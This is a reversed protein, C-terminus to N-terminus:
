PRCARLRISDGRGSSTGAAATAARAQRRRAVHPIRCGGNVVRAHTWGDQEKAPKREVGRLPVVLHGREAAVVAAQTGVHPSASGRRWRRRPLRAEICVRLLQQASEVRAPHFGEATDPKRHTSGNAERIDTKD